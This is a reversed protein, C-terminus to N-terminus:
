SLVRKFEVIWVWPNEEWAGHGNIADWLRSYCESATTGSMAPGCCYCGAFDGIGEKIGEALSDAESIATLREVRLGTIELIIRCATRPMHISPKWELDEAYVPGLGDHGLLGYSDSDARYWPADYETGQLADAGKTHMAFSERVWLRDGIQGYPCAVEDVSYWGRLAPDKPILSGSEEGGQICDWEAWKPLKWVRRTQTKRGELIARVMHGSFLIPREKM